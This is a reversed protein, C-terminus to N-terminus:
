THAQPIMELSVFLSDTSVLIAVSLLAAIRLDIGKTAATQIVTKCNGETLQPL